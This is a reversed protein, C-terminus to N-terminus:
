RCERAAGPCRYSPRPLDDDGPEHRLGYRSWVAILMLIFPVLLPCRLALCAVLFSMCVRWLALGQEIRLLARDIADLAFEVDTLLPAWMLAALAGTGRTWDGLVVRTGPDPTVCPGPDFLGSTRHRFRAWMEMAHAQVLSKGSGTSYTILNRREQLRDRTRTLRTVQRRAHTLSPNWRPNNPDLLTIKIDYGFASGGDFGADAVAPTVDGVMERLQQELLRAAPSTFSPPAVDPSEPEISARQSSM